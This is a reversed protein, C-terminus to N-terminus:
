KKLGLGYLDEDILTHVRKLTRENTSKLSNEIFEPHNILFDKMTEDPNDFYKCIFDLQKQNIFGLNLAQTFLDKDVIALAHSTVGVQKLNNKGGQNRDIIVLTHEMIGNLSNVIPVWMKIYSSATTILDALHLVKAGQLDSIDETTTFESDSKLASMDKFVTLHPKKLLYALIISFYWDRREGGSIYEFNSLGINNEIYDKMQNIVDKYIANTNYQSLVKDLIKKPLDMKKSNGNNISELEETIFDLLEKSEEESGYVFQANFFYPGIKGSTYWFPENEKCFKIANTEFLYNLIKSM